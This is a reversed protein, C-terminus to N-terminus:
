EPDVNQDYCLMGPHAQIFDNYVKMAESRQLSAMCRALESTGHLVTRHHLRKTVKEGKALLDKSEKSLYRDQFKEWIYDVAESSPHVMDSSYFRYDRLDDNMIEYSPFYDTNENRSCIEECALQLIAKSRSNGEFGDKHRIYM